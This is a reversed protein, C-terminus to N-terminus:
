DLSKAIHNIFTRFIDTNPNLAYVMRAGVVDEIENLVWKGKNKIFDVGIYDPKLLKCVTNVVNEMEKTITFEEFSGGQSFNSRFDNQNKRLVAKVIKGGIVYVRVDKGLTDAYKQFIYNETEGKFDKPEKLWLVEKGGHGNLSKAIIPFRTEKSINRFTEMTPINNELCFKYTKWKDNGIEVTLSNNFCPIKKGEFFRTIKYDRTRNIVFDPLKLNEINFNEPTIIELGYEKGINTIEEIFWKNRKLDDATYLLLGKM